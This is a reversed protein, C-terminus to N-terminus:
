PTVISIQLNAGNYAAFGRLSVFWTGAAPADITCFENNGGLFPRCNFTATTPQANFRVYLDADGTGGRVIASLYRTGAPVTVTRHIFSNRAGSAPILGTTAFVGNARDSIYSFFESVRAYMGPFAALACGNGWSVVGALKTVGGVNVVLPGGSDGQCSDKGGVGIVGAGLQDPSIAFGYAATAQANTVLPVDVTQLIDPQGGGSSLTGWGSVTSIVGGNTAGAAADAPSVLPIAKANPGSLDLPPTVHLLSVDDGNTPDSFGPATAIADVQRIQGSAQTSRRTTGAVVRMNSNGGAVCHQATIVWNANLITGGCFQGGTLTTIMVQWPRQDITTNAGGVIEDDTVSVDETNGPEGDVCAGVTILSLGLGFLFHSHKMFM